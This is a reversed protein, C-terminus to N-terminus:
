IIYDFQFDHSLRDKFSYSVKFECEKKVNTPSCGNMRESVNGPNWTGGHGSVLIIRSGLIDSEVQLGRGNYQVLFFITVDFRGFHCRLTSTRFPITPDIKHRCKCM